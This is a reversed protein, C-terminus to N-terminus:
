SMKFEQIEMGFRSDFAPYRLLGLGTAVGIVGGTLPMSNDVLATKCVGAEQPHVNLGYVVADGEIHCDKPCIAIFYDFNPVGAFAPGFKPNGEVVDTCTM